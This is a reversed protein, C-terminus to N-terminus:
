TTATGEPAEDGVKQPVAQLCNVSWKEWPRRGCPCNGAYCHHVNRSHGPWPRVESRPPLSSGHAGQASPWCAPREQWETLPGWVRGQFSPLHSLPALASGRGPPRPVGRTWPTLGPCLAWAEKTVPRETPAEPTEGPHRQAGRTRPCLSVEGAGLSVASIPSPPGPRVM